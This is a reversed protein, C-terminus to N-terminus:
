FIKVINLIECVQQVSSRGLGKTKRVFACDRYRPLDGLTEWGKTKRAINELFYRNPIEFSIWFSDFMASLELPIKFVMLDLQTDLPFYKKWKGNLLDIGVGQALPPRACDGWPHSDCTMMQKDPTIKIRWNLVLVVKYIVNM